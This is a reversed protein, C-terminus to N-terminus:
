KEIKSSCHVICKREVDDSLGMAMASEEWSTKVGGSNGIRSKKPSCM